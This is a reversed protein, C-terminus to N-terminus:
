ATQQKWADIISKERVLISNPKEEFKQRRSETLADSYWWQHTDKMTEVLPTFTLGHKIAHQNNVLASCKNNGVPM